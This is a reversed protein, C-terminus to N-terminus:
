KSGLLTLPACGAREAMDEAFSHVALPVKELAETIPPWMASPAITKVAEVTTHGACLFSADFLDKGVKRLWHDQGLRMTQFREEERIMGLLYREGRSARWQLLRDHYAKLKM